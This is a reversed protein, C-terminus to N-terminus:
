CKEFQGSSENRSYMSSMCAAHSHRAVTTEVRASPDAELALAEDPEVKENWPKSRCSARCRTSRGGTRCRTRRSGATRRRGTRIRKSPGLTQVLLEGTGQQLRAVLRSVDLEDFRQLVDDRDAAGLDPEGLLCGAVVPSGEVRGIQPLDHPLLVAKEEREERVEVNRGFRLGASPRSPGTPGGRGTTPRTAPSPVSTSSDGQGPAHPGLCFLVVADWDFALLDPLRDGPATSWGPRATEPQAGDTERVPGSRWVM